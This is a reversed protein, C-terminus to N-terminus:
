GIRLELRAENFQAGQSENTRRGVEAFIKASSVSFHALTIRDAL